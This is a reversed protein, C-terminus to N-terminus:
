GSKKVRQHDFRQTGSTNQTAMVKESCVLAALSERWEVEQERQGSLTELKTFCAERGHRHDYQHSVDAPKKVTDKQIRSEGRLEGGLRRGKKESRREGSEQHSDDVEDRLRSCRGSPVRACVIVRGATELVRHREEVM